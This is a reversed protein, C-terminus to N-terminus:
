FEHDSIRCRDPPRDNTISTHVALFAIAFTFLNAHMQINLAIPVQKVPAIYISNFILGKCIRTPVPFRMSWLLLSMRNLPHTSKSTGLLYLKPLFNLESIPSDTYRRIIQYFLTGDIPLSHWSHIHIAVSSSDNKSRGALVILVVVVVM